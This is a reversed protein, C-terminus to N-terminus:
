CMLWFHWYAWCSYALCCTPAPLQAHQLNQRDDAISTPDTAASAAEYYRAPRWSEAGTPSRLQHKLLHGLQHRLNRSFAWYRQGPSGAFFEAGALTSGAASAAIWRGIPRCCLALKRDLWSVSVITASLDSGAAAADLATRSAPWCLSSAFLSSCQCSSLAHWRSGMGRHYKWYSYLLCLRLHFDGSLRPRNAM